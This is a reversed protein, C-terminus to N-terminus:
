SRGAPRANSREAGRSGPTAESRYAYVGIFPDGLHWICGFQKVHVQVLDKGLPVRLLAPRGDRNCRARAAVISDHVLPSFEVGARVLRHKAFDVLSDLAAQPRPLLVCARGESALTRREFTRREQRECRAVVLAYPGIGSPEHHHRAM